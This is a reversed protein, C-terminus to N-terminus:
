FLKRKKLLIASLSTVVIFILLISSFEPVIFGATVEVDNDDLADINADYQGNGNIDVIIDYKGITQPNGWVATPLINGSPDSSVTTLTGTVRAPISLGNTWTAVDDVIYFDYTTSSSYGSGNVYVTEGLNFVDKKSGTPTCSEITPPPSFSLNAYTFIQKQDEEPYYYNNAPFSTFYQVKFGVTDATTCNLDSLDDTGTDNGMFPVAFECEWHDDVWGFGEWFEIEDVSTSHDVEYVCNAEFDIEPIIPVFWNPDNFFGDKLTPGPQCSKLDEQEDTLTYDRTGSGRGGDDGEDFFIAFQDTTHTGIQWVVLGIYVHTSNHKLYLWTSINTSGTLNVKYGTADSWEASGLYGDITPSNTSLSAILEPHDPILAIARPFIISFMPLTFLLAVILAKKL